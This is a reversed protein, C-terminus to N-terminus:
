LKQSKVATVGVADLVAGERDVSYGGVDRVVLVAPQVRQVTSCHAVVLAVPGDDRVGGVADGEREEVFGVLAEGAAHHGVCGERDFGALPGGAHHRDREVLGRGDHEGVVHVPVESSEHGPWIRGDQVMGQVHGVRLAHNANISDFNRGSLDQSGRICGKVEGRGLLNAGVDEIGLRTAGAADAVVISEDDISRPVRRWLVAREGHELKRGRLSANGKVQLGVLLAQLDVAANSLVPGKGDLRALLM